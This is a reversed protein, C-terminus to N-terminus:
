LNAKCSNQELQLYRENAFRPRSIQHNQHKQVHKEHLLGHPTSGWILCLYGFNLLSFCFFMVILLSPLTTSM